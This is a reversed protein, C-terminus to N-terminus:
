LHIHSEPNHLNIKKLIVKLCKEINLSIYFKNKPLQKKKENLLELKKQLERIEADIKQEEDVQQGDTEEKDNKVETYFNIIISTILSVVIIGYIGLIVSLIRGALSGAAIDGFGITTVVAFCYWLGDGFSHFTERDFYQLVYSFSIILM